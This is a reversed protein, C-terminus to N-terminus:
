QKYIGEPLSAIYKQAHTNRTNSTIYFTHCIRSKRHFEYSSLTICVFCLLVLWNRKKIVTLKQFLPVQYSFIGVDTVTSSM